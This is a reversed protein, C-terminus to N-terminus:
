KKATVNKSFAVYIDSQHNIQGQKISSHKLGMNTMTDKAVEDFIIAM